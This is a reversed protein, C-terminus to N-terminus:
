ANRYIKDEEEEDDDAFHREIMEGRWRGEVAGQRIEGRLQATVRRHQERSILGRKALMRPLVFTAQAHDIEDLASEVQEDTVYGLRVAVVGYAQNMEEATKVLEEVIEKLQRRPLYGRREIVDRLPVRDPLWAAARIYDRCENLKNPELLGRRALTRFLLVDFRTSIHERRVREPNAQARRVFDEAEKVAKSYKGLAFAKALAKSVERDHSHKGM